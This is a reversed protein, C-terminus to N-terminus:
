QQKVALFGKISIFELLLKSFFSFFNACCGDVPCLFTLLQSALQQLIGM